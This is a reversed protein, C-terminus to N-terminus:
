KSGLRPARTFPVTRDFLYRFTVHRKFRTAKVYSECMRMMVPNFDGIWGMELTQYQIREGRSRERKTYLEFSRILAAEVGHGQYDPIIGFILGAVRNIKRRRISILLSLKQRLGFKGGFRGILQNIDPLMVFFGIPTGNHYAMYLISPDIIPKMASIMAMASEETLPKVGEFKAWGQNYIACFDHAMQAVRKMDFTRFEYQPNEFLREAKAALAEPMAIDVNLERRYTIQNFYNEFGYAEFLHGYYPRNYNMGYLPQSFGEVLVGWWQMRDGFNISGDMAQMGREGLWDRAADFLVVSAELSDICEFFGCGGTPQCELAAKERNYFAAIRGVPLGTDVDKLIWRIADGGGGQTFLKNKSPDFLHEIDHHLPEVWNEDGAYISRAIHHFDKVDLPTCVTRLEYKEM